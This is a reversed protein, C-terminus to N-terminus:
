ASARRDRLAQDESEISEAMSMEILTHAAELEPTMIIMPPPHLRKRKPVSRTVLSSTSLNIHPRGDESPAQDRPSRKRSKAGLGRMTNSDGYRIPRSREAPRHPHTKDFSGFSPTNLRTWAMGSPSGPSGSQNASRDTDTGYGSEVDMPKLGGPRVGKAPPLSPVTLSPSPTRISRTSSSERSHSFMAIADTTCQRIVDMDVVLSNFEPDQKRHCM